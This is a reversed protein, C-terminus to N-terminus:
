LINQCFIFPKKSFSNEYAIHVENYSKLVIIDRRKKESKERIEARDKSYRYGILLETETQQM